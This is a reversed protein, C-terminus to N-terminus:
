RKVATLCCTSPTLRQVESVLYCMPPDNPNYAGPKIFTFAVCKPNKDCDARCREPNTGVYYTLLQGDGQNISAQQIPGWGGEVTPTPTATRTATPSVTPTATRRANTNPIRANSQNSVARGQGFWIFSILIGIAALSVLPIAVGFVMWPKGNQKEKVQSQPEASFTPRAPPSQMTSPPQIRRIETIRSEPLSQTEHPDYLVSLISGDELCFNLTEDTYTHKCTPCTKM